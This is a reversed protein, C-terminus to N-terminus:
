DSGKVSDKGKGGKLPLEPLTELAARVVRRWQAREAEALAERGIEPDDSLEVAALAEERSKVGEMYRAVAREFSLTAYPNGGLTDLGAAMADLVQLVPRSPTDRGLPLALSTPPLREELRPASCFEYVVEVRQKRIRPQAPHSPEEGPWTSPSGPIRLLTTPLPLCAPASTPTSSKTHMSRTQSFPTRSSGAQISSPVTKGSTSVEQSGAGVAATAPAVTAEGVKRTDQTITDTPPQKAETTTPLAQPPPMYLAPNPQEWAIWSTSRHQCTSAVATVRMGRRLGARVLTSTIASM